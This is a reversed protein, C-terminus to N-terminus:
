CRHHDQRRFRRKVESWWPQELTPHRQEGSLDSVLPYTCYSVLLSNTKWEKLWSGRNLLSIAQTAPTLLPLPHPPLSFPLPTPSLPCPVSGERKGAKRGVGGRKAGAVCAVHILFWSFWSGTLKSAWQNSGQVQIVYLPRLECGLM